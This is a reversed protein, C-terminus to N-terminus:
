QSWREYCREAEKNAEKTSFYECVDCGVGSHDHGFMLDGPKPQGHANWHATKYGVGVPRGPKEYRVLSALAPEDHHGNVSGLQALCLRNPWSNGGRSKSRKPWGFDPALDDYLKGYTITKRRSAVDILKRRVARVVDAETASM